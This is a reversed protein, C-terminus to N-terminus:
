QKIFQKTIIKDATVIRLNYVGTALPSVDITRQAPDVKQVLKGENSIIEVLDFKQAADMEVTLISATPNPYLNVRKEAADGNTSLPESPLDYTYMSRGFTGALLLRREDNLDLDAVITSPLDIGLIQWTDGADWSFFVGLDTAIYFQDPISPDLVIENIPVEPLNSSIDRWSTGYDVSKLVHPLYNDFRYGSYTVYITAEDFPDTAVSSVELYPLDNSILDWNSGGDTTIQVNGDDTGAIIINRNIESIALCTITGFSSGEYPGNTLDPSIPLWTSGTDLSMLVREAGYLIGGLQDPITVFPTNWNRRSALSSNPRIGESVFPELSTARRINGFQSTVYYIDPNVKDFQVGFGDGGSIREYGNIGNALTMLTGNDQAGALYTDTFVPHIACEYFQNNDITEVHRFTEGGDETIYIGGDNGIVRYDPDLPHFEMGHQDVHVGNNWLNWIEGDSSNFTRLGMIFVENDDIPNTRVNGFFWGFSAFVNSLTDGNLATWTDGQDISKYIGLFINSVVNTTFSAYIINPNNQSVALGIRGLDGENVPLGNELLEWTEGGDMSRHIGTSLGGYVRGEPFRTREWSAAFLVQPDAASLAIDIVATSDNIFLKQEWTEGGDMTKYLGREDNKGYLKGAVAVYAINEDEPHCVIRGIHDSKPLGVNRWTDGGDISKYIGNGFFAGSTASGNAEGTGVFIIEPDVPSIALNGISVGGPENFVLTWNFGKDESKWVGGVSSGAYITNMDNPHLAIDTIRGGINTPGVAKWPKDFRSDSSLEMAKFQKVALQKAERKIGNPFARQSYMWSSPASDPGQPIKVPDPKAKEVCSVSAIILFVYFLSRLM